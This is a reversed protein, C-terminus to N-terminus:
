TGRGMGLSYKDQAGVSGGSLLLIGAFTVVGLALRKM